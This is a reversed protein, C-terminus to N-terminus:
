DDLLAKLRNASELIIDREESPEMEEAQFLIASLPARAEAIFERIFPGLKLDKPDMFFIFFTYHRTITIQTVM